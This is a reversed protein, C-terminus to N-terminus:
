KIEEWWVSFVHPDSYLATEAAVLERYNAVTKVYSDEILEGNFKQKYFIRYRKM